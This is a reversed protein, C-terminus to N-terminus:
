RAPPPLAVVQQYSGRNTVPFTPLSEASLDTWAVHEVPTLWDAMDSTRYQTGLTSVAQALVHQLYAQVSQGDLYGHYHLPVSSSAGDLVHVLYNYIVHDGTKFTPMNEDTSSRWRTSAGLLQHFLATGFLPVFVDQSLLQVSEDFITLGPSGYVNPHSASPTRDGGWAAVLRAAARVAPSSSALGARVLPAEFYLTRTDLVAVQHAVAAVQAVTAHHLAALREFVAEVTDTVGWTSPGSINDVGVAPKNNWNALWGQAPDVAHPMDAFPEFGRWGYGGWGPTPFSPDLAADRVPIRGCMFYAINGAGDAYLLNIPITMESAARRFGALGTAEDIHFFASLNALASPYSSARLVYAYGAAPDSTIVPGDITEEDTQRVVSVTASGPSSVISTPSSRVVFTQPRPTMAVWTGDHLYHHPHGPQLRELYVDENSWLGSTVTWAFGNGQGILVVGGAGPFTIGTAHFGPANLEITMFISPIYYGEEPGGYLMAQHSATRSPAVVWANSGFHPLPFGAQLRQLTTNVAAQAAGGAAASPAIQAALPSSAPSSGGWFPTPFTGVAAPVTTPAAPDNRWTADAFLASGKAQGWRAVLQAYAAADIAQNGGGDFQTALYSDLQLVDLVTWHHIPLDALAAFEVPLDLPDLEARAIAANIGDVYSRMAAQEVVPLMRFQAMLVARPYGLNRVTEDAALESPGLIAALKGEAARRLVEIQFLRLKGTEFGAAFEMSAISPAYIHPTGDPGIYVRAGDVITPVGPASFGFPRMGFHEYLSLQNSFDPGPKGTAFAPANVFGSEGPPLVNAGAGGGRYPVAYPLSALSAGPLGSVGPVGGSLLAVGGM